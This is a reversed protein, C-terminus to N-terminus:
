EIIEKISPGTAAEALQGIRGQEGTAENFSDTAIKALLATAGNASAWSRAAAIGGSKLIRRLKKEKVMVQHDYSEYKASKLRNRGATKSGKKKQQEAM